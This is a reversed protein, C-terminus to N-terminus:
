ESQDKTGIPIDFWFTAGKGTDSIVGIAGGHEDVIGKCIALGLGTGERPADEVRDIQQFVKFLKWQETKSIGPGTDSVSFRAVKGKEEVRVTVRSGNPAFKVANSILNTLIQVVRDKDANITVTGEIVQTLKIDQDNAVGRLADMTQAILDAADLNQRFLQLKGVEIKKIDLMDNILRIMRDCEKRGLATLQEARPTLEGAKGRELLMLAGKVSTLPTKLEHSVMSYFDSVRQEAAKRETIDSVSGCIHYSGDHQDVAAFIKVRLWRLAGDARRIQYEIEPEPMEYGKLRSTYEMVREKHEPVIADAWRFPNEYTDTLSFGWIREYAPSIYYHKTLQPSSVFVCEDVNEAFIRFYENLRSQQALEREFRRREFFQGFETSLVTFANLLESDPQLIKTSFFEFVGIVKGGVSIPFGFASHLGDKEAHVFRPFNSDTVVDSIYLAAKDQWVRGPLGIGPELQLSRSVKEFTPCPLTTYFAECGLSGISEDWKWFASTQWELHQCMTKLIATLAHEFPLDGALIKSVSFIVQGSLQSKKRTAM